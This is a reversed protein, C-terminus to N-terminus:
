IAFIDKQCGVHTHHAASCFYSAATASQDGVREQMKDAFDLHHSGDSIADEYVSETQLTRMPLSFPCFLENQFVWAAHFMHAAVTQVSVSVCENM